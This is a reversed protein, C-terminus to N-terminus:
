PPPVQGSTVDTEPDFCYVRYQTVANAGVGTTIAVTMFLSMEWRGACTVTRTTSYFFLTSPPPVPTANVSFPMVSTVTCAMPISAQPPTAPVEFFPSPYPFTGAIGGSPATASYLMPRTVLNCEVIQVATNETVTSAIAFVTVTDGANMGYLGNLKGQGPDDPLGDNTITWTLADSIQTVDFSATITIIAM